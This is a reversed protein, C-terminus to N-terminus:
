INPHPPSFTNIATPLDVYRYPIQFEDCLAKFKKLATETLDSQFDANSKCCFIRCGAFRYPYVSCKGEIQYNCRGGTMPKISPITNFDLKQIGAEAPIVTIFHGTINQSGVKDAFYLMEPTTVYLRHGFSDFNCCKGCADCIGASIKNVIIQEDLWKYIEEVRRIVEKNQLGLLWFLKLWLTKLGCLVCLDCLCTAFRLARKPFSNFVTYIRTLGHRFDVADIRTKKM